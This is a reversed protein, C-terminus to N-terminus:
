EFRFTLCFSMKYVKGDKNNASTVISVDVQLENGLKDINKPKRIYFVSNENDIYRYSEQNSTCVIEYVEPNLFVSNSVGSNSFLGGIRFDLAYYDSEGIKKIGFSENLNIIIKDKDEEGYGEGDLIFSNYGEFTAYSSSATLVIKIKYTLVFGEIPEGKSNLLKIVVIVEDIKDKLSHITLRTPDPIELVSEDSCKLDFKYENDSLQNIIPTNTYIIKDFEDLQIKGSEDRLPEYGFFGYVDLSCSGHANLYIEKEVERNEDVFIQTPYTKMKVICTDLYQVMKGDVPVNILIQVETVQYATKDMITFEGTAENLDFYPAKDQGNKIANFQVNGSWGSPNIKYTLLTPVNYDLEFVAYGTAEDYMDSDFYVAKIDSIPTPGCGTLMLCLPTAFVFLLTLFLYKLKKM